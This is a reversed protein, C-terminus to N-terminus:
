SIEDSESKPLSFYFQSGKGESTAWIRGQHGEIINKCIFLGLGLGKVDIASHNKGKFPDFITKMSDEDIGIGQDIVSVIYENNTETLHIAIEGESSYKIANELLNRLVQSIRVPDIKVFSPKLTTDNTFSITLGKQEVLSSMDNITSNLVPILNTEEFHFDFLERRISSFDYINELSREIRDINRKIANFSRRRTEAAMQHNSENAILLDFHGKIVAIPTRMEHSSIDIIQSKLKDIERLEDLQNEIIRLSIERLHERTKTIGIFFLLVAFCMVIVIIIIIEPVVPTLLQLYSGISVFIVGVGVYRLNRRRMLLRDQVPFLKERVTKSLTISGLISGIITGGIALVNYLFIEEIGTTILILGVIVVGLISFGIVLFSLIFYYIREDSELFLFLSYWILCLFISASLLFDLFGEVLPYEFIQHSEFSYYLYNSFFFISLSLFTLIFSFNKRTRLNPNEILYIIIVAMFISCLTMNIVNIFELILYFQM